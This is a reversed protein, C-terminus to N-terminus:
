KDKKGGIMVGMLFGGFGVAILFIVDMGMPMTIDM